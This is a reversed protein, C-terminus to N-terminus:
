RAVCGLLERYHVSSGKVDLTTANRESRQVTQAIAEAVDEVHAPQLRTAGNGFLPYAPLRHLLKLIVTLFADDQGFTVAPRILIACPYAARVVM